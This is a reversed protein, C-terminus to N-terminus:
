KGPRLMSNNKSAAINHALFLLETRAIPVRYKFGKGSAWSFNRSWKALDSENPSPWGM